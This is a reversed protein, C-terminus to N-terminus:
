WSRPRIGRFDETAVPRGPVGVGSLSEEFGLAAAEARQREESRHAEAVLSAFPTRGTEDVTFLASRAEVSTGGGLRDLVLRIRELRALHDASMRGGEVWFHVARRTVGFLGAFQAWTLGSAVKLARIQANPGHDARLTAGIPITAPIATVAPALTSANAPSSLTLSAATVGAFVWWTLPRRWQDEILKTSALHTWTLGTNDLASRM